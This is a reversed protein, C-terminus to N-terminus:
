YTDPLNYASILNHHWEKRGYRIGQVEVVWFIDAELLTIWNLGTESPKMYSPDFAGFEITSQQPNDAM